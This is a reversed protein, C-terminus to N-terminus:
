PASACVQTSLTVLPPEPFVKPAIAAIVAPARFTLADTTLAVCTFTANVGLASPEHRITTAPGVHVPPFAIVVACLRIPESVVVAVAVRIAACDRAHCVYQVLLPRISSLEDSPVACYM